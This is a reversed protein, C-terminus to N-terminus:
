PFVEHGRAVGSLGLLAVFDASRARKGAFFACGMLMAVQRVQEIPLKAITARAEDVLPSVGVLGEGCVWAGHKNEQVQYPEKRPDYHSSM